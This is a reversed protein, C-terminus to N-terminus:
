GGEGEERLGADAVEAHEGVDVVALRREGVVEDGGVAYDM